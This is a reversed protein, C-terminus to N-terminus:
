IVHYLGREFSSPAVWQGKEKKGSEEVDRLISFIDSLLIVITGSSVDDAWPENAFWREAEAVASTGLKSHAELAIRTLEEANRTTIQKLRLVRGQLSVADSKIEELEKALSDKDMNSRSLGDADKLLATASLEASQRLNRLADSTRRLEKEYAEM